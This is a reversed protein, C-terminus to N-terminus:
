EDGPKVTADEYLAAGKLRAGARLLLLGVISFGIAQALGILWGRGNPSAESWILHSIAVYFVYGAAWPVVWSRRTWFAWAGVAFIAWHFPATLLAVWGRIEFGLWVEVERTEAFFLDRPVNILFAILCVSALATM